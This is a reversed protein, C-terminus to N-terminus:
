LVHGRWARAVWALFQRYGAGRGRWARAMGAGRGRWQTRHGSAVLDGQLVPAPRDYVLVHPVRRPAAHRPAPPLRPVAREVAPVQDRLLVNYERVGQVGLADAPPQFVQHRRDVKACPIVPTTQAVGRWGICGHGTSRAVGRWVWTGGPHEPRAPM